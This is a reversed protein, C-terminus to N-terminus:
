MLQYVPDFLIARMTAEADPRRPDVLPPVPSLAHWMADPKRWAPPLAAAWGADLFVSRGPIEPAQPQASAVPGAMMPMMNGQMTSVPMAMMTEAAGVPHAKGAMKLATVDLSLTGNCYLDGPRINRCATNTTTQQGDLARYVDGDVEVWDVYLNRDGRRNGNADPPAAADNDFEISVAHVPEDVPFRLVRWVWDARDPIMGFRATDAAFDLEQSAIVRTGNIRLVFRPGGQWGDGALRVAIDRTGAQPRPAVLGRNAVLRALVDYRAVLSAPTIWAAGGPWGKVNPPEFLDQGLRRGHVPLAALDVVPLGLDRHAGVILTVPSKIMTGRNASAWFADTLFLARLAPKLEYRQDRLVAAVREIDAAAPLEPSVFERWMKEVVFQATRKQELLVRAVDDGNLGYTDLFQKGGEDHMGGVFRFGFDTTREITRGTLARAIEKIDAETYHGEGLTFLELLERALNENPRGKRNTENNLYRLMVPDRLIAYLLNVFSGTAERRFLANQDWMRHVNQGVAEYASVFHNHWFLTMRETLPSPTAIMEAYWWAKLQQLEDRRAQNFAQRQQETMSPFDRYPPWPQSLFNPRPLVPETRTRALIRDIAAARDLPALEAIESASAGFGTRTLLHRADDPTLANAPAVAVTLTAFIGILAWFKRM